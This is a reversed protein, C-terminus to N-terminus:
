ITMDIEVGTHKKYSNRLHMAHKFCRNVEAQWKWMAVYGPHPHPKWDPDSTADAGFHESSYTGDEFDQLRKWFGAEDTVQLNQSCTPCIADAHVNVGFFTCHLGTGFPIPDFESDPM